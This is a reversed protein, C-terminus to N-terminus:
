RALLMGASAAIMLATAIWGLVNLTATNTWRGMIRRNNAVLMIVVMLPPAAVGNLIAAYFLMRIPSNGVLDLM